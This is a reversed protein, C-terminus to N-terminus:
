RQKMRTPNVYSRNLAELKNKNEICEKHQRIFSAFIRVLMKIMFDFLITVFILQYVYVAAHIGFFSKFVSLERWMNDFIEFDFMALNFM